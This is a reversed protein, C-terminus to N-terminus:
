KKKKYFRELNPSPMAITYPNINLIYKKDKDDREIRGSYASPMGIIEHVYLEAKVSSYTRFDEETSYTIIYKRNWLDDNETCIITDGENVPGRNFKGVDIMDYPDCNFREASEIQKYEPYSLLSNEKTQIWKEETLNRNSYPPIAIVRQNSYTTSVSHNKGGGVNIGSALQGVKGDIGLINAISGLGLSAGSSGGHNITTQEINDYYCLFTGDKKIKFCNGKDIYITRDTKNTINIYYVLDANNEFTKTINRKITIEIDENSMVSSSKVGLILACWKAPSNRKLKETTGNYLQNYMALIENNREDAPKEIYGSVDNISTNILASSTINDFTEKEGNEYNVSLIDAVNITYTPGNINSFRKYKIDTTGVELIKSLITSGDKKVIVDQAYLNMSMALM